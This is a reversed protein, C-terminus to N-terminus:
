DDGDGDVRQKRRGAPDPTRASSKGGFIPFRSSPSSPSQPSRPSKPTRPSGQPSDAIKIDDAFDGRVHGKTKIQLTHDTNSQLALLRTLEVVLLQREAFTRFMFIHQENVNIGKAGMHEEDLKSEVAENFNVILHTDGLLTLATLSSIPLAWKKSKHDVVTPHHSVALNYLWKTSLLLVRDQATNKRNLKIVFFHGQYIEPRPIFLDEAARQWGNRILRSILFVWQEAQQASFSAYQRRQLFSDFNMGLGMAGRVKNFRLRNKYKYTYVYFARPESPDAVVSHVDMLATSTHPQTLVSGPVFKHIHKDTLVLVWRNGRVLEDFEGRAIFVEGYAKALAEVARLVSESQLDLVSM